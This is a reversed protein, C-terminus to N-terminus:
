LELGLAACVFAPYDRVSACQEAVTDCLAPSEVLEADLETTAIFSKRKIEEILPDDKAFGKPPRKLKLDHQSWGGETFPASSIIRSWAEPRDRIAERIQTLVPTPPTYAGFGLFVQDLDIHLYLGPAHVDKGARHRFQIGVNTKYPTKDNSFRTDRYIRMLSGGSKRDDAVLAPAFRELRPAMARIFALAPGRVHKEYRKKNTNFWDRDNNQSLEVLFQWLEGTFHPTELTEPM